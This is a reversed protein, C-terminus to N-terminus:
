RDWSRDKQNRKLRDFDKCFYSCAGLCYEALSSSFVGRANTMKVHSGGNQYWEVLEPSLYADIGASRSHIWVIPHSSGQSNRSVHSLRPLIAALLFQASEHSVFITNVEEQRIIDLLRAIVSEADGNSPRHCMVHVIRAGDPLASKDYLLSNNADEPDSLCLIRCQNVVTSDGNLKHSAKVSSVTGFTSPTITSSVPSTDSDNSTSETRQDNREIDRSSSTMKLFSIKKRKPTLYVQLHFSLARLFHHKNLLSIGTVSIQNRTDLGAVVTSAV